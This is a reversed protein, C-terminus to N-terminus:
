SGDEEVVCKLPFEHRRALEAVTVAKMEAIEFPFVGAVGQGKKHIRWMLETAQAPTKHFVTELIMVVFEMTTYNDNLLTVRYMRPERVDQDSKVAADREQQSHAM